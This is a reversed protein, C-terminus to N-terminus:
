LGEVSIGADILRKLIEKRKSPATKLKEVAAARIVEAEDVAPESKAVPAAVSAPAAAPLQAAPANLADIASRTVPRTVKMAPHGEVAASAPHSFLGTGFLGSYAPKAPQASVEPVEFTETGRNMSNEYRKELRETVRQSNMDRTLDSRLSKSAFPFKLLASSLDEGRTLADTLGATQEEERKEIADKASIKVGANALMGARYQALADSEHQDQLLKAADHKERYTDDRMANERAQDLADYHYRLQEAASRERRAEEQEALMARQAMEADAQDRARASLGVGSGSQMAEIVNTPRLWPAVIPM